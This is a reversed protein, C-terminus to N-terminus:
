SALSPPLIITPTPRRRRRRRALGTTTHTKQVAAAMHLAPQDSHMSPWPHMHAQNSTLQVRQQKADILYTILM